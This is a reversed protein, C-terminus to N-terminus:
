SWPIQSPWVDENLTPGKEEALCWQGPLVQGAADQGWWLGAASPQGPERPEATPSGEAQVRRLEGLVRCGSVPGPLLGWTWRVPRRSVRPLSRSVSLERTWFRGTM